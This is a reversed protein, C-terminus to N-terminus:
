QSVRLVASLQGLSLELARGVRQVGADLELEKRTVRIPKGAVLMGAAAIAIIPLSGVGVEVHPTGDWCAGLKADLPLRGRAVVWSRNYTAWYPNVEIAGPALPGKTIQAAAHLRRHSLSHRTELRLLGDTRPAPFAHRLRLWHNMADANLRIPGDRRDWRISGGAAHQTDPLPPEADNCPCLRQVAASAASCNFAASSAAPAICMTPLQWTPAKPKIYAPHVDGGLPSAACGAECGFHDRLIDCDRLAAPIPGGDGVCVGRGAACAQTCSQGVGGAVLRPSSGQESGSGAGALTTNGVRPRGTDSYCHKRLAIFANEHLTSHSSTRCAAQCAQFVTEWRGTEPRDCVHTRGKPCCGTSSDIADRPCVRGGDDALFDETRQVSLASPEAAPEECGRAPGPLPRAAEPAAQKAQGAKDAELHKLLPQAQLALVATCYALRAATFSGGLDSSWSARESARRWLRSTVERAQKTPSFLDDVVERVRAIGKRRHLPTAPRGALPEAEEESEVGSDSSYESASGEGDAVPHLAAASSLAAELGRLRGQIGTRLTALTPVAGAEGSAVQRLGTAFTALGAKPDAAEAAAQKQLCALLGGERLGRADLGSLLTDLDTLCGWCGEADQVMLCSRLGALGYWYSRHHRDLGLPSRRLQLRELQQEQSDQLRALADEAAAIEHQAAREAEREEKLRSELERQRRLEAGLWKDRAKELRRRETQQAQRFLLMAKRDDPDGSYEQLEPPLELSPAAGGADADKTDGAGQTQGETDPGAEERRKKKAEKEAELLDKLHRREEAMEDRFGRKVDEATEERKQIASRVKQTELLADTLWRLLALHRDPGLGVIPEFSLMSAAMAAHEDVRPHADPDQLWTLVMRRLVEPWTASSLVATWRKEQPGLADTDRLDALLADLIKGFQQLTDLIYLLTTVRQSEEADLWPPQVMDSSPCPKGQAAAEAQSEALLQLDEMPYRKALAKQREREAREAARQKERLEREKAKIDQAATRQDCKASRKLLQNVAAEASTVAKQTAAVVRAAAAVAAEMARVAAMDDELAAEHKAREEKLFAQKESELERVRAQLVQRHEMMAKRDDPDGAYEREQETIEFRVLASAPVHFQSSRRGPSRRYEKKVEALDAQRRGLEKEAAALDDRRRSLALQAQKLVRGEGEPKCTTTDCDLGKSEAMNGQKGSLELGPTLKTQILARGEGPVPKAVVLHPHFAHLSYKGKDLRVFNPDKTLVELTKATLFEKAPATSPSAALSGPALLGSTSAPGKDAAQGPSKVAPPLLEAAYGEPLAHSLGLTDSLEPKLRWLLPRGAPGKVSEANEAIFARLLSKSYPAKPKRKSSVNPTGGDTGDPGSEAVEAAPSPGCGDHLRSIAEELSGLSLHLLEAFKGQVDEPIKALAARAEEEEEKAEAWTLKGQGTHAATWIRQRYLNVKSIYTEYERVVEGTSRILFVEENDQFHTHADPIDYEVARKRLLPM